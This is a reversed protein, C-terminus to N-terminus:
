PNPPGSPHRERWASRLAQLETRPFPSGWKARYGSEGYKSVVEEFGEIIARSLGDTTQWSSWIESGANDHESSDALQLLRIWVDDGERYFIWRYVTPEAELEARTEKEDTILRTVATLL